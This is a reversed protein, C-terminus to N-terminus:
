VPTESSSDALPIYIRWQFPKQDKVASYVNVRVVKNLAKAVHLAYKRGAASARGKTDFEDTSGLARPRENGDVEVTAKESLAKVLAAALDEDMPTGKRGSSSKPLAAEVLKVTAM